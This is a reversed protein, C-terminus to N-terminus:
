AEAESHNGRRSLYSFIASILKQRRHPRPKWEVQEGNMRVALGASCAANYFRKVEDLEVKLIRGALYVSTPRLSFLSALRISNGDKPLRTLNPWRKLQIVDETRCGKDFCCDNPVYGTYGIVWLLEEMPRAQPERDLLWQTKRTQSLKLIQSDGSRVRDVLEMAVEDPDYFLNEAGDIVLVQTPGTRIALVQQDMRSQNVVGILDSNPELPQQTKSELAM